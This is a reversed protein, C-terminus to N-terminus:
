RTDAEFCYQRHNSSSASIEAILEGKQGALDSTDIEFGKWGDSDQDVLRALTRGEVKWVLTVPPSDFRASDWNIAHHGHLLRGFQVDQFRVRVVSSGGVAPAYLCKHARYDTAQLVSTAVFAGRPCVFRDAPLGPGFGLGGTQVSGQTWPCDTERGGEVLQVRASTPTAHDVLDDIVKVPAPNDYTTVTIAGFRSTQEEKWGDLEPLHAGRISVVLARPFRSDDPRAERDVTALEDKFYERGLPDVWSPAFVVLDDAHAAAKVAQRASAWDQPPIKRTVQVAHALLEFIAIAPILLFAYRAVPGRAPAPTPTPASTSAPAVSSAVEPPEPLPGPPPDNEEASL